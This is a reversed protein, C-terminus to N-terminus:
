VGRRWTTVALSDKLITLNEEPAFDGGTRKFVVPYFGNDEVEVM